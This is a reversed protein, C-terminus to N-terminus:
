QTDQPLGLQERLVRDANNHTRWYDIMMEKNRTATTTLVRGDFGPYSDEWGLIRYPFASEFRIILKRRLEPMEVTYIQVDKEASLTATASVPEIPKHSLRLYMAGPLIRIDGVPLHKPAIRVMNWLGDEQVVKDFTFQRDGETEFYSRSEVAYKDERTNLQFYTMGCWDQVSGTSKLPYPNNNIDLPQYSSLMISYPYIGTVFKISQNLKLVPVKDNGASGPDDLKVQKSLSLDETVFVNVVTGTHLEGYRSQELTYSTIEGKGTYWYANWETTPVFPAVAPAEAGTSATTNNTGTSQQCGSIGLLAPIGAVFVILASRM